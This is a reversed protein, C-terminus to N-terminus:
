KKPRIGGKEYTLWEMMRRERKKWFPMKIFHIEEMIQFNRLDRELAQMAILDNIRKEEALKAQVSKNDM